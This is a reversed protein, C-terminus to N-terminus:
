LILSYNNLVVINHTFSLSQHDSDNLHYETKLILLYSPHHHGEHLPHSPNDSLNCIEIGYAMYRYLDIYYNSFVWQLITIATTYCLLQVTYVTCHVTYDSYHSATNHCQVTVVTTM